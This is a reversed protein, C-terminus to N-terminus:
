EEHRSLLGLSRRFNSPSVQGHPRFTRIRLCSHLKFSAMTCTYWVVHVICQLCRVDSGTLAYSACLSRRITCIPELENHNGRTIAIPISPHLLAHWGAGFNARTIECSRYRLGGPFYGPQTIINCRSQFFVCVGSHVHKPHLNTGM